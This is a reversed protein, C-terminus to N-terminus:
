SRVPVLRRRRDFVLPVSGVLVMAAGLAALSRTGSGTQPLEPADSAGL